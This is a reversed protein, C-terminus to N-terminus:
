GKMRSYVGYGILTLMGLIGVIIVVIVILSAFQPPLLAADSMYKMALTANADGSVISQDMHAKSLFGFIGMSTLFALAIVAPVLYLKLQWSTRNWHKHLWVTTVVKAIELSGGMIIIPIAAAAFIAVLGLISYWAAIASLSLATVLVLNNLNFINKIFM